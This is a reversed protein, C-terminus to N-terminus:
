SDTRDANPVDDPPDMFAKAGSAARM